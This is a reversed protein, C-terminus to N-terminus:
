RPGHPGRTQDQYRGEYSQACVQHQVLQAIPMGQRLAFPRPGHNWVEITQYGRSGPQIVTNGVTVGQRALTSLDHVTLLIDGPVMFLERTAVLVFSGPYVWCSEFGNGLDLHIDCTAKRNEAPTREPSLISDWARWM